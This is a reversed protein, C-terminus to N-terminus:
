KQCIIMDEFTERRVATYEKEGDLMIVPPKCIANYNSSMAYNYAGTTLVAIIDGREPKPIKVGEQILDGSECCRGAVTCEYDKLKNAKNAIMVTYDSQYLAYRPNDPMGGDVSVYNKFGTIEKRGGVTYLTIGADAVISRGPEMLIVPMSVGNKKCENKILEAIGKINEVYDIEPDSEVYKVGMGGGLNLTKAEYGLENKMQAIFKIMIVAADCFPEYDFIQSGIHCHFGQLDINEKSLALECLENAQGTEIAAGFKSDVNGTSIKAHTHPDIGPTLRLLIKQKIGHKGAERNIAELEDANDCVFYGIGNDMAFKIDWDTKNNGHFYAKKVDFGAQLATYLEGSSVVDIGTNEESMIEYIRKFCLSKSAFLPMSETGFYEAMANKYIRCKERIKREDMIYAPTGYKDALVTTDHGAFCLNGKENISLNDCIM